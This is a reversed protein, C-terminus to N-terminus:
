FFFGDLTGQVRNRLRGTMMKQLPNAIKKEFMFELDSGFDSANEAMLRAVVAAAERAADLPVALEAPLVPGEEEEGQLGCFDLHLKRLDCSGRGVEGIGEAGWGEKGSGVEEIMM